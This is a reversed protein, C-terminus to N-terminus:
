RNDLEEMLQSLTLKRGNFEFNAKETALCFDEIANKQKKTIKSEGFRLIRYSSIKTWGRQDLIREFDAAYIAGSDREEPTLEITKSLVLEKALGRHCEFGCQYFNGDNDIYGNDTTKSFPSPLLKIIPKMLEDTDFIVEKTELNFFTTGHYGRANKNKNSRAGYLIKNKKDYILSINSNFCSEFKTIADIVTDGDFGTFYTFNEYLIPFDNKGSKLENLKRQLRIKDAKNM